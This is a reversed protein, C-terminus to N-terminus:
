KEKTVCKQEERSRKDLEQGWLLMIFLTVMTPLPLQPLTAAFSIADLVMLSLLKWPIKEEVKKPGAWAQM